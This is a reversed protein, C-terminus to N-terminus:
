SRISASIPSKLNLKAYLAVILVQFTGFLESIRPDRFQAWFSESFSRFFSGFFATGEYHHGWIPIKEFKKLPHWASPFLLFYYSTPMLSQAAPMMSLHFKVCILTKGRLDHSESRSGNKKIM